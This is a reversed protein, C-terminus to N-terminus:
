LRGKRKVQHALSERVKVQIVIGAGYLANMAASMASSWQESAISTVSEVTGQTPTPTAKAVQAMIESMRDTTAFLIRRMEDDRTMPIRM